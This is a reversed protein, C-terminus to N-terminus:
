VDINPNFSNGCGCTSQANPNSIKFHAGYIDDAYDISAGQLYQISVSDVVLSIEGQEIHYDDDSVLDDLAFGYQFGSCGGGKVFIRIKLNSNGEEIIIEKIKEQALHTVTIM